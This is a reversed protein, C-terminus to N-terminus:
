EEGDGGTALAADAIYRTVRYAGDAIKKEAEHAVAASFYARVKNASVAGVLWEGTQAHPFEVVFVENVNRPRSAHLRDIEAVLGEMAFDSWTYASRDILSLHHRVDQIKAAIEALTTM